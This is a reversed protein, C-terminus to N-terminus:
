TAAHTIILLGRVDAKGIRQYLHDVSADFAVFDGATLEAPNDLPGVRIRGSYVHLHERTGGPHGASHQVASSHLHFDYIETSSSGSAVTDLLWAEVAAGVVRAGERARVIRPAEVPPPEAILDALAADLANALGYLTELTPNGGGAELQTLTARSIAARRALDVASLGHQRRLRRLNAALRARDEQGM